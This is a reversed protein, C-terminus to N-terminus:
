DILHWGRGQYASRLWQATRRARKNGGGDSFDVVVVKDPSLSARPFARPSLPWDPGGDARILVDVGISYEQAYVMTTIERGSVSPICSTAEHGKRLEWHSLFQHLQEGHESNEVLIAVSPYRRNAFIAQAQTKSLIGDETLKKAWGRQIGKALEAILCNRDDNNWILARKKTLACDFDAKPSSTAKLLVVDVEASQPGTRPQQYIEPGVLEELRFKEYNRLQRNDEFLGYCLFGRSSELQRISSAALASEADAFIVVEWPDLDCVGFLQGTGIIAWPDIGLTWPLQPYLAIRRYAFESLLHHLRAANAKNKAVILLRRDAFIDAIMAITSAVNRVGQMVLQGGPRGCVAGLLREDEPALDFRGKTGERAEDLWECKTQDDVVVLHGKRELSQQVRPVLGSFFVLGREDRAHHNKTLKIHQVGTQGGAVFSNVRRELLPAVLDADQAGVFAVHENVVIKVTDTVIANNESEQKMPTTSSLTSNELNDFKTRKTQKTTLYGRTASSLFTTSATIPDRSMKDPFEDAVHHSL